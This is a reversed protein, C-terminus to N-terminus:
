PRPLQVMAVATENAGQRIEAVWVYSTLNESLSIAVVAAAQDDPVFRLGVGELAVRLGNQIIESERRSLSSRNEVTLAVAGPGTVAAIKRALQQEPVSWDAALARSVFCPILLLFCLSVRLRFAFHSARKVTNLIVNSIVPNYVATRM